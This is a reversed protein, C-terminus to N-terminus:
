EKTGVYRLEFSPLPDQGEYRLGDKSDEESETTKTQPKSEGTTRMPTFITDTFTLGWVQRRPLYSGRGPFGEEVGQSSSEGLGPGKLAAKGQKTPEPVIRTEFM